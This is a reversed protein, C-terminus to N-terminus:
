NLLSRPTDPNWAASKPLAGIPLFYDLCIVYIKLIKVVIWQPVIRKKQEYLQRLIETQQQKLATSLNQAGKLKYMDAWLGARQLANQTYKVRPNERLQELFFFLIANGLLDKYRLFAILEDDLKPLQQLVLDTITLSGKYSIIAMLDSETLEDTTEFSQKAHQSLTEIANVRFQQLNRPRQEALFAQLYDNELYDNEIQDAFNDDNKTHTLQQLFKLKAEPSALVASIAALAYTYSDQLAKNIETASLFHNKLITISKDLAKESLIEVVPGNILSNLSIKLITSIPM